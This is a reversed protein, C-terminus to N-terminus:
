QAGPVTAPEQLLDPSLTAFPGAGGAECDVVVEARKLATLVTSPSASPPPLSVTAPPQGATLPPPLCHPRGPGSARAGGGARPFQGSAQLLPSPTPLAGSPAQPLLECPSLQSDCPVPLTATRCPRTDPLCLPSQCHGPRADEQAPGTHASLARERMYNLYLSNKPALCM